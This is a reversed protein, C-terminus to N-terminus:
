INENSLYLSASFPIGRKIKNSLIEFKNKLLKNGITDACIILEKILEDLRRICRVM